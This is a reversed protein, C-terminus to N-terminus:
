AVEMATAKTWGRFFQISLDDHGSEIMNYGFQAKFAYQMAMFDSHAM